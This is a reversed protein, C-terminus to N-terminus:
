YVRGSREAPAAAAPQAAQASRADQAPVASAGDGSPTPERAPPPAEDEPEAGGEARTPPEARDPPGAGAAPETVGGHAASAGNGAGAQDGDVTLTLLLTGESVTDGTKVKLEEVVGGFPAPVDMTAKDSELTVIPDEPSVTDGPGVMVEIVPVETFDGIDPVVVDKVTAM